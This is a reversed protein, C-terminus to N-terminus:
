DRRAPALPPRSFFHGHRFERTKPDRHFNYTFCGNLCFLDFIDPTDVLRLEASCRPCSLTPKRGSQIAQVLSDLTDRFVAEETKRKETWLFLPQGKSRPRFGGTKPDRYLPIALEDASTRRVFKIALKYADRVASNPGCNREENFEATVSGEVREFPEDVQPILEAQLYRELEQRFM